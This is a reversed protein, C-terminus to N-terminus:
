TAIPHGRRDELEAIAATDGARTCSPPDNIVSRKKNRWNVVQGTGVYAACVFRVCTIMKLGIITGGSTALVSLRRAM